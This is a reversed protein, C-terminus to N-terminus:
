NRARAANLRAMLDAYQAESMSSQGAIHLSPAAPPADFALAGIDISVGQFEPPLVKALDILHRKFVDTGVLGSITQSLGAAGDIQCPPASAGKIDVVITSRAASGTIMAACNVMASMEMPMGAACVRKAYRFRLDYRVTHPSTIRAAAHQVRLQTACPVDRNLAQASLTQINALVPALNIAADIRVNYRGGPVVTSQWRVVAPLNFVAAGVRPRATFAKSGEMPPAAAFATQASALILAVAVWIRRM